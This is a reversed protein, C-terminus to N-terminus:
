NCNQSILKWLQLHNGARWDRMQEAYKPGGSAGSLVFAWREEAAVPHALLLALTLISGVRM